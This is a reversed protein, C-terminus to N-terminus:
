APAGYHILAGAIMAMGVALTFAVTAVKDSEKAVAYGARTAAFLSVAMLVGGVASM